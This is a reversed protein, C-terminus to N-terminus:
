KAVKVKAPRLVQGNILYGKELVEVIEGSKKGKIEVRAIAEHFNPNFNEGAMRMEEVGETKLFKRFQNEIQLIGKVWDSNKLAPPLTVRARELNDLIPLIKLILEEKTYRVLDEIREIEQKKYNLFDARARQWGALYEDRLKECEKLKESLEKLNLEKKEKKVDPM